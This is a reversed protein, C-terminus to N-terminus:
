EDMGYTLLESSMLKGVQSPFITEDNVQREIWEMLRAVYQYFIFTVFWVWKNEIMIQPM